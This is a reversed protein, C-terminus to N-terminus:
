DNNNKRLLQQYIKSNQYFLVLDDKSHFIIKCTDVSNSNNYSIILLKNKSLYKFTGQDKYCIHDISYSKDKEFIVVVNADNKKNEELDNDSYTSSIKVQWWSGTVDLPKKNSISCLLLLIFPLSSNKM